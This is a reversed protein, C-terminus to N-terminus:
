QASVASPGTVARARLAPTAWTRPGARGAWAVRPPPTARRAPPPVAGARPLRGLFPRSVLAPVAARRPRSPRAAETLIAAHNALRDPCHRPQHSPRPSPVTPSATAAVRALRDTSDPRPQRSACHATGITAKLRPRAACRMAAMRCRRAAVRAQLPARHRVPPAWEDAIESNFNVRFSFLEFCIALFQSFNGFFKHLYFILNPVSKM